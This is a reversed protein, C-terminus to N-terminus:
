NGDDDEESKEQEPSSSSYSADVLGEGVIYSIVTAGAM